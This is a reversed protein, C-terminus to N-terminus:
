PLPNACECDEAFWIPAVTRTITGRILVTSGGEEIYEYYGASPNTWGFPWGVYGGGSPSTFGYDPATLFSYSCCDSGGFVGGFVGAFGLWISPESGATPMQWEYYRVGDSPLDEDQTGNADLCMLLLGDPYATRQALYGDGANDINIGTIQGFTASGTDTDIVASLEAGTGESPMLQNITVTVDAVYPPLSADERYYAGGSTVTVGTPIGTYYYYQGGNTVVVRAISTTAKYYDGGGTITVSQIVGNGTAKYFKGIGGYGDLGVGTIAGNGDVSTILWGDTEVLYYPPISAFGTGFESYWFYEGAEYGSGGDIVNIAAVGWTEPDDENSVMTASLVAGSGGTTGNVGWVYPTLNPNERGADTAITGSAATVQEGDTVTFTVADGDTYGTGGDAVTVSDVHWLATDSPTTPSQSLTVTLSAGSGGSVSATITPTARATKITAVAAAQETVNAGYSFTVAAGDTYGSTSGSVSVSAVGWTQPSGGNSALTPTLTAGTGGSVSATLTPQSRPDTQVTLVAGAKTTDGAKTSVTLTEGNAYGTGGSFTVSAIKWTPIGCADNTSALTPTVTLGAGSGGSVTLTPAVRALKAYGSGPSAGAATIPGRDAREYGVPATVEATAGSGFCSSLSLTILQRSESACRVTATGSSPLWTEVQQSATGTQWWSLYELDWEWTVCSLYDCTESTPTVCQGDVCDCGAPCPNESDCFCNCTPSGCPHQDCAHGTVWTGGATECASQTAHEGNVSGDICCREEVECETGPGAFHVYRRGASEAGKLCECETMRRCHFGDCEQSCCAGRLSEDYDECDDCSEVVTGGGAACGTLDDCPVEFCQGECCCLCPPSSCDARECNIDKPTGQWVYPSGPVMFGNGCVGRPLNVCQGITPVGVTKILPYRVGPIPYFFSHICCATDECCNKCAM